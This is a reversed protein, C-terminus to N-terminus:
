SAVANLVNSVVFKAIAFASVIIVLGAVGQFMLRKANAVKETDGGATMWMFGGVLILIVAIIGLLGMVVNILKGITTPLDQDATLGASEALSSPLLTKTDLTALMSLGGLKKFFKNM